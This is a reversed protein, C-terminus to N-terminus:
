HIIRWLLKVVCRLWCIINKLLVHMLRRMSRWEWHTLSAANTLEGMRGGKEDMDQLSLWGTAKMDQFSVTLIFADVVCSSPHSYREPHGQLHLALIFFCPYDHESNDGSGCTPPSWVAHVCQRYITMLILILFLPSISKPKMGNLQIKRLKNNNFDCLILSKNRRAYAALCISSPLGERETQIAVKGQNALSHQWREQIANAHTIRLLSSSEGGCTIKRIMNNRSNSVFITGSQQDIAPWTPNSFSANTGVGDSDGDSGDGAFVSVAGQYPTLFSCCLLSPSSLSWVLQRSGVSLTIWFISLM